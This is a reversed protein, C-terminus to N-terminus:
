TPRGPRPQPQPVRDSPEQIPPCVWVVFEENSPLAFSQQACGLQLLLLAVALPM